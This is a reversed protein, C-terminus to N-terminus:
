SIPIALNKGLLSRSRGSHPELQMLWGPMLHEIITCRTFLFRCVCGCLQVYEYCLYHLRPVTLPCHMLLQRCLTCLFPMALPVLPSHAAPLGVVCAVLLCLPVLLPLSRWHALSFRWHAPYSAPYGLGCAVGPTTPALACRLTTPALACPLLAFLPRSSSSTMSKTDGGRTRGGFCRRCSPDAIPGHITLM